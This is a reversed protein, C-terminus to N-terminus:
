TGDIDHSKKDNRGNIHQIVNILTPISGDKYGQIFTVQDHHMIRKYM